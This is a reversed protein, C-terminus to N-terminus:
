SLWITVIMIISIIHALREVNLLDNFLKKYIYTSCFASTVLAMLWVAPPVWIQWNTFGWVWLSLNGIMQIIAILDWLSKSPDSQEDAQFYLSASVKRRAAISIGGAFVALFYVVYLM